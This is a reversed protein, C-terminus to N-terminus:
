VEPNGCQGLSLSSLAHIIINFYSPEDCKVYKSISIAAVILWNNLQLFILQWSNQNMTETTKWAVIDFM